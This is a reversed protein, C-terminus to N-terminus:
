ALPYLMDGRDADNYTTYDVTLEEGAMIDRTAVFSDGGNVVQINPNESHNVHWQKTIAEVGNDPVWYYGNKFACMDHVLKRVAEPVDSLESRSMRISGCETTDGRFPNIGEPIPKIAFVGIGSIPSPALRTFVDNKLQKLLKAKNM